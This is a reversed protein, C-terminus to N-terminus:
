GEEWVGLRRWAEAAARYASMAQRRLDEAVRIKETTDSRLAAATEALKLSRARLTAFEPDARRAKLADATERAIEADRRAKVAAADAREREIRSRRSANRAQLEADDAKTDLQRRRELDGGPAADRIAQQAAARALKAEEARKGADVESRSALVSQSSAFEASTAAIRATVAAEQEEGATLSVFDALAQAASAELTKLEDRAELAAAVALGFRDALEAAHLSARHASATVSPAIRHAEVARELAAVTAARFADRIGVADPEDVAGLDDLADYAGSTALAAALAAGPEPRAEVGPEFPDEACAVISATAVSAAVLWHLLSRRFPVSGEPGAVHGALSLAGEM